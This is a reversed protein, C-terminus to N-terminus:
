PPPMRVTDGDLVPTHVCAPAATEAAVAAHGHSSNVDGGPVPTHLRLMTPALDLLGSNSADDDQRVVNMSGDANVLPRTHLRLPTDTDPAPNKRAATQRPPM